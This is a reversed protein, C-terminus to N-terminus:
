LLDPIIEILHTSSLSQIRLTINILKHVVPQTLEKTVYLVIYGDNHTQIKTPPTFIIDQGCM